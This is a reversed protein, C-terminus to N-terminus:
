EYLIEKWKEISLELNVNQKFININKKREEVTMNKIGEKAINQINGIKLGIREFYKWTSVGEVLYVTKGKMILSYINSLAEQRRQNFVAIDINELIETYEEFPIFDKMPVFKNGFLKYGEKIVKEAYKKKGGYSLPVYLKNIRDESNKLINLAEIHENTLSASNGLMVNFNNKKDIPESERLDKAYPYFLTQEINRGTVGYWEKALDYEETFFSVIVAIEKFVKKRLIEYIKHFITIKKSLHYFYLDKGWILWTSKKCLDSFLYLYLLLIPSALSHIIIKDAKRMYKLLKLHGIPLFWSKIFFTKIGFNSYADDEKGYHFLVQDSLDFNNDKLMKFYGKSFKKQDNFIHLIM